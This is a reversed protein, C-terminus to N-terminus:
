AAHAGGKFALEEGGSLIAWDFYEAVSVMVDGLSELRNVAERFAASGPMGKTYAALHKRGHLVAQREGLVDELESLHGLAVEKKDKLTPPPLLEGTKLWHTLRSFIWPNGIAGRGIM